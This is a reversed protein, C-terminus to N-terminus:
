PWGTIDGEPSINVKLGSDAIVARAVSTGYEASLGRYIRRALDREVQRFDLERRIQVFRVLASYEKRTV